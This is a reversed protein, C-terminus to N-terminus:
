KRTLIQTTYDIGSPDGTISESTVITWERMNLSPFYADGAYVSHIITMYIKTVLPLFLRYITEGGIVVAEKDCWSENLATLPSRVTMFGPRTFDPDRSIVIGFRGPLSNPLSECTKRGMIITKDMTLQKFRQLESPIHWPLHNHHGICGNLDRAVILSLNTM